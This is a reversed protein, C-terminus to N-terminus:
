RVVMRPQRVDKAPKLEFDQFQELGIQNDVAELKGHGKWVGMALEMRFYYRKGPEVQVALREDREDGSVTHRGPAAKVTIYTGPDLDAVLIDDVRVSTNLAAGIFQRKRYFVLEGSNGRSAESIFDAARRDVQAMEETSACSTVLFSAALGLLGLWISHGFPKPAPVSCLPSHSFFRM